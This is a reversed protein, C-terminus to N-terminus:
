LLNTVRERRIHCKEIPFKGKSGKNKQMEDGGNTKRTFVKFQCKKTKQSSSGCKDDSSERQDANGGTQSKPNCFIFGLDIIVRMYSQLLYIHIVLVNGSRLSCIGLKLARSPM